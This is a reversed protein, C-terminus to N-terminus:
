HRRSGILLGAAGAFPLLIVALTAFPSGDAAVLVVATAWGPGPLVALAVKWGASM